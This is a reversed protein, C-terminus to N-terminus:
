RRVFPNVYVAGIEDDSTRRSYNIVRSHPVLRTPVSFFGLLALLLQVPESLAARIM